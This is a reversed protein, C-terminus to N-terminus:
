KSASQAAMGPAASAGESAPGPKAGAEKQGKQESLGSERPDYLLAREGEQLGELVQVYHNNSKGIKVARKEFAPGHAVFCFHEGEEAFM